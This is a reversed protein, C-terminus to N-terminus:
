GRGWMGEMEDDPDGDVADRNRTTWVYAIGSLLLVLGMRLALRGTDIVFTADYASSSPIGADALVSDRWSAGAFRLQDPVQYRQEFTELQRRLSDRAAPSLSADRLRSSPFPARPPSFIAAFGLSWRVTDTLALAAVGGATYRTTTRVAEARWPPYALLLGELALTAAVVRRSKTRTTVAM